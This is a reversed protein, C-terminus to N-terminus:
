EGMSTMYGRVTFGCGRYSERPLVRRRLDIQPATLGTNRLITVINNEFIM